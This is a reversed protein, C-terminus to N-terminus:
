LRVKYKGKMKEVQEDPINHINRSGHYNEVTVVFLRYNYKRALEIYPDMEWDITFTNDVFIKEVGNKMATETNTRCQEYALHNKQHDFQYKGAPDTFFDDVSYVPYKGSESLTWALTSKGSGPIGRLLIISHINRDM